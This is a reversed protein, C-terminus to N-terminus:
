ASLVRALSFGHKLEARRFAYGIAGVGILMLAWTSPEPASSVAGGELTFTAVIDTGNSEATGSYPFSGYDLAYYEGENFRTDNLSVDLTSGDSFAIAQTGNWTVQGYQHNGPFGLSYSDTDKVGVTSGGVTGASAGTFDFLTSIAQAVTDDGNVTTEPTYIDFIDISTSQGPTLAFSLASGTQLAATEIQLGAVSTNYTESYTGSFSAARASAALLLTSIMATTALTKTKM